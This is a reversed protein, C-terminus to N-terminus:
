RASNTSTPDYGPRDRRRRAGPRRNPPSPASWCALAAEPTELEAFLQAILPAPQAMLPARLEPLRALSERLSALDRPRANRLAIRGAIREIDAIGRLAKRVEGAV